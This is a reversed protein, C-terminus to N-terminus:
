ESEVSPCRVDLTGAGEFGTVVLYWTDTASSTFSVSANFEATQADDDPAVLPFGLECADQGCVGGRNAVLGAVPAVPEVGEFLVYGGLQLSVDVRTEVGPELAYLRQRSGVQILADPDQPHACPLIDLTGPDDEGRLVVDTTSNCTLPDDPAPLRSVSADEDNCDAEVPVGDADADFRELLTEESVVICGSALFLPLARVM